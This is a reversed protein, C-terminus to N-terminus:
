PFLKAKEDQWQQYNITQTYLIAGTYDACAYSRFEQNKYLETQNILMKVKPLGLAYTDDQKGILMYDQTNLKKLIQELWAQQPENLNQSAIFDFRWDAFCMKLATSQLLLQRQRELHQLDSTTIEAVALQSLLNDPDTDWVKAAIYFTKSM